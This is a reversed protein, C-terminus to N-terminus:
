WTQYVGEDSEGTVLYERLKTVARRMESLRIAGRLATLLETSISYRMIYRCKESYRADLRTHSVRSSHSTIKISEFPSPEPAQPQQPLSQVLGFHCRPPAYHA